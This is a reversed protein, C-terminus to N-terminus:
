SLIIELLAGAATGVALWREDPSVALTHLARSPFLGPRLLTPGDHIVEEGPGSRPGAFRSLDLRAQPEVDGMRWLELVGDNGGCVVHTEAVVGFDHIRGRTKAQWTVRAERLNVGLLVGSETARVGADFDPTLLNTNRLQNQHFSDDWDLELDEDGRGGVALSQQDAEDIGIVSLLVDVGANNEPVARATVFNGWVGAIAQSTLAFAPLTLAHISGDWTVLLLREPTLPLLANVPSAFTHQWRLRADPLSWLYANTSNAGAIWSADPAVAVISVDFERAVCEKLTEGTVADLLEVGGHKLACALQRGGDLIAFNQVHRRSPELAPHLQVTEFERLVRGSDLSHPEWVRVGGDLGASYLLDNAIRVCEVGGAHLGLRRVEGFALM